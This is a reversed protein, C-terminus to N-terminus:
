DLIIYGNNSIYHGMCADSIMNIMSVLSIALRM